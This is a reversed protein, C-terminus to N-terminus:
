SSCGGVRGVGAPPGSDRQTHHGCDPVFTVVRVGLETLVDPSKPKVTDFSPFTQQASQSTKLLVCALLTAGAVDPPLRLKDSIIGVAPAFFADAATGIITFLILLWITFMVMTLSAPLGWTRKVTCYHFGLYDIREFECKGSRLVYDCPDPSTEPACTDTEEEPEGQTSSATADEPSNLSITDTRSAGVALEDETQAEQSRASSTVLLLIVLSISAASSLRM